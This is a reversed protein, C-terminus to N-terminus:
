FKLTHPAQGNSLSFRAQLYAKLFDVKELAPLLAGDVADQAAKRAASVEKKEATAFFQEEASKKASAERAFFADDINSVNVGSVDVQTSTAIVYAQNVRRLPM